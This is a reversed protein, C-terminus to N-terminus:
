AVTFGIETIEEKILALTVAAPDFTVDVRNEKHNAVVDACGIDTLANM